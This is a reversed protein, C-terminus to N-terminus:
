THNYVWVVGNYSFSLSSHNFTSGNTFSATYASYNGQTSTIPSFFVSNGSQSWTGSETDTASSTGNNNSVLENIQESYTGNTNLTYTDSQISVTGSSFSYSYPLPSNNITQLAYTGGALQNGNPSTNDTCAALTALATLAVIAPLARISTLRM